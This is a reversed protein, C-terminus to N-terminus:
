AQFQALLPFFQPFSVAAWHGGEIRTEGEAILGAVALSMAVRHDSAAQVPAGTLPTPGQIRLGDELAEVNAGMRRLGEVMTAIRDSEKVRLEEAGRIETVGEAQTALVSLIPIEDILAPVEAPGIRIGRLKPAHVARLTATPEGAVEGTPQLELAGGMECFARFWGLRTPNANVEPLRIEGGPVLMAAAALFAASSPDGPVRIRSPRAEAFAALMRETHDRSPHPESVEVEVGAITGALLLASKVQASAVPIEYRGGHLIGGPRFVLPAYEEGGERRGECLAGMKRLPELVRGMPRRRLSPDGDLTAAIGAGAIVGALLRMTTGSNGCDLVERPSHLRKPGQVRVIGTDTEIKAGLAQLCRATAEPDDGRAINEIELPETSLAGLILARHSLSKDGPLHVEGAFRSAKRVITIM